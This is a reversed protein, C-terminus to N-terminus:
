EGLWFEDPLPANFDESIWGQGQHLGLVRPSLPEDTPHDKLQNAEEPTLMNHGTKFQLFEIFKALEVLSSDPLQDIAQHLDDRQRTNVM